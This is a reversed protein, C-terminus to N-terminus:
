QQVLAGPYFDLTWIVDDARGWVPKPHVLDHPRKCQPLQSTRDLRLSGIRLGRSKLSSRNRIIPFFHDASDIDYHPQHAPDWPDWPNPDEIQQILLHRPEFPQKTQSIRWLLLLPVGHRSTMLISTMRERIDELIPCAADGEATRVSANRCCRTIQTIGNCRVQVVM